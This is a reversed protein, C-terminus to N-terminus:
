GIVPFWGRLSGSGRVGDVGAEDGVEGLQQVLRIEALDLHLLAIKADLQGAGHGHSGHRMRDM